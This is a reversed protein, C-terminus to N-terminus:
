REIICKYRNELKQLVKVTEQDDIKLFRMGARFNKDARKSRIEWERYELTSQIHIVKNELDTQVM